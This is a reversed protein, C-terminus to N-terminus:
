RPDFEIYIPQITLPKSSPQFIGKFSLRFKGNENTDAVDWDYRMLGADADLIFFAGAGTKQASTDLNTMLLSWSATNWNAPVQRNITMVQIKLSPLLDGVRMPSYGTIDM